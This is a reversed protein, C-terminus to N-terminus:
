RLGGRKVWAQYIADSWKSQFFAISAEKDNESLQNIFPPMKGGVKTGGYDVTHKLMKLPHHWAHASGNLPPPPYSGDPLPKKWNFTGQADLGHCASCNKAFVQKGLKVQESSYWRGTESNCAVTITMTALFIFFRIM